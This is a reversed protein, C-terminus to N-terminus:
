PLSTKVYNTVYMLKSYILDYTNWIREFLNMESTSPNFYTPIYSPNDPLGFLDSAWPLNVSTTLTIVPVKLVYSYGLLCNNSFLETVILDYKKTTERLRKAIDTTFFAKCVEIGIENLM